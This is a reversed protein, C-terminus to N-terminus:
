YEKRISGAFEYLENFHKEEVELHNGNNFVILIKGDVEKALVLREGFYKKLIEKYRYYGEKFM